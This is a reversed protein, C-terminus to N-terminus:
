QNHGLLMQQMHLGGWECIDALANRVAPEYSQPAKAVASLMTESYDFWNDFRTKAQEFPTRTPKLGQPQQDLSTKQDAM